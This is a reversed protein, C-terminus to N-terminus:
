ATASRSCLGPRHVLPGHGGYCNERVYVIGRGGAEEATACVVDPSLGLRELVGPRYSDLFIYGTTPSLAVM